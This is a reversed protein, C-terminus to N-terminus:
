KGELRQISEAHDDLRQQHAAAIRELGQISGHADRFIAAVGALREATTEELDTHRSVLLELSQTLSQIREDTTPNRPQSM